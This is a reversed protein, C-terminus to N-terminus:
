GFASGQIRGYEGNLIHLALKAEALHPLQCTYIGSDNATATALYLFSSITGNGVTTKVSSLFFLLCQPQAKVYAAAYM